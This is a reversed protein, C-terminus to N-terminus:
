GAKPYHQADLKKELNDLALQDMWPLFPRRAGRFLGVAADRIAILDRREQEPDSVIKDLEAQPVDSFIEAIQDAIDPASEDFCDTGDDVFPSHEAPSEIKSM